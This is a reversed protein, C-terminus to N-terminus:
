ITFEFLFEFVHLLSKYRGPDPPMLLSGLFKRVSPLTNCWSRFEQFSMFDESSGEDHKTFVAADFFVGMGDKSLISKHDSIDQKFLHDFIAVLVSELDSRLNM